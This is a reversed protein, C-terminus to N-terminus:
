KMPLEVTPAAVRWACVLARVADELEDATRVCEFKWCRRDKEAGRLGTRVFKRSVRSPHSLLRDSDARRAHPLPIGHCALLHGNGQPPRFPRNGSGSLARPDCVASYLLVTWSFNGSSHGRFRLPFKSSVVVILLRKGRLWCETFHACHGLLYRPNPSERRWDAALM